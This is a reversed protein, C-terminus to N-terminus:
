AGRVEMRLVEDEAEKAREAAHEMARADLREQLVPLALQTGIMAGPDDCAVNILAMELHQLAVASDELRKDIAKLAAKLSEFFAKDDADSYLQKRVDKHFHNRLKNLQMYQQPSLGLSSGPAEGEEVDGGEPRPSAGAGAGADEEGDASANSATPQKAAILEQFKEILSEVTGKWGQLQKIETERKTMDYETKQKKDYIAQLRAGQERFATQVDLQHRHREMELANRHGGDLVRPTHKVEDLERKLREFEPEGQRLQQKLVRLEKEQVLHEFVLNHLKARTLLAERKLMFLVVEDPLTAPEAETGPGSSSSSSGNALLPTTADVSGAADSPKKPQPRLDYTKGLEAAELRSKLM